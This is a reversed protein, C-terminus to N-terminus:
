FHHHICYNFYHFVFRYLRIHKCLKWDHPFINHKGNCNILQDFRRYGNALKYDGNRECDCKFIVLEYQKADVLRYDGNCKISVFKHDGNHKIDNLKHMGHIFYCICRYTYRYEDLYRDRWIHHGHGHNRAGYLSTFYYIRNRTRDCDQDNSYASGLLRIFFHIKIRRGM